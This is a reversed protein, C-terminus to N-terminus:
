EKIISDIMKRADEDGQNAAQDLWYAAKKDNKEVGRGGHYLLGLNYQAVSEGQEAAMELLKAAETDYKENPNELYLLALKIQAKSNGKEAREKLNLSRMVFSVGAIIICVIFVGIVDSFSEIETDFLAIHIYEYVM